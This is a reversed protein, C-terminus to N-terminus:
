GHQPGAGYLASNRAHYTTPHTVGKEKSGLALGPNSLGLGEEWV